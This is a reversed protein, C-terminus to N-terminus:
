GSITYQATPHNVDLYKIFALVDKPLMGTKAVHARTKSRYDVRYFSRSCQKYRTIFYMIVGQGKRPVFNTVIHSMNYYRLALKASGICVVMVSNIRLLDAEKHFLSAM